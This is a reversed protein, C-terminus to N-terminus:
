SRNFNSISSFDLVDLSKSLSVPNWFAWALIKRGGGVKVDSIKEAGQVFDINLVENLLDVEYRNPAM